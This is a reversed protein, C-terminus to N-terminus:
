ALSFAGVSRAGCRLWLWDTGVVAVWVVGAVVCVCVCLRFAVGSGLGVGGGSDGGMCVYRGYRRCKGSGCGLSIEGCCRLRSM